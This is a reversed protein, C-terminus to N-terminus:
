NKTSTTERVLEEANQIWQDLRDFTKKNGMALCRYRRFNARKKGTRSNQSHMQWLGSEKKNQEQNLRKDKLEAQHINM